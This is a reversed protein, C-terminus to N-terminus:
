FEMLNDRFHKHAYAKRTLSRRQLEPVLGLHKTAMALWPVLVAPDLKPSSAGYKLYTDHSGKYTYPVMSSDEIIMYDFCGRELGKALDVFIDPMMWRHKDTETGPWMSRWAKPGYGQSLFWALHFHDKAM